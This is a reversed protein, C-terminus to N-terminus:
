SVGSLFRHFISRMVGELIAIPKWVGAHFCADCICCVVKINFKESYGHEM